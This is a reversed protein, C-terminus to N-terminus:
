FFRSLNEDTFSYLKGKMKNEYAELKVVHFSFYLFQKIM